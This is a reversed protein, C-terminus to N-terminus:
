ERNSLRVSKLLGITCEIWGERLSTSRLPVREWGNGREALAETVRALFPDHPGSSVGSAILDQRLDWVSTRLSPVQRINYILSTHIEAILFCPDDTAHSIADEYDDM